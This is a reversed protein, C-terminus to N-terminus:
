IIGFDNMLMDSESKVVALRDGRKKRKMHAEIDAVGALYKDRWYATLPHGLDKPCMEATLGSVLVDHYVTPIAPTAAATPVAPEQIFWYKITSSSDSPTPYLTVTDNYYLYYAPTGSSTASNPNISDYQRLDILQLKAGNYTVRTIEIARTPKTYDSTGSTSTATASTEICKTKRAVYLMVRYLSNLLNTDAWNTDGAANMNDRAADLIEQATM